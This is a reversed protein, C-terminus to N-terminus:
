FSTAHISDLVFTPSSVTQQELVLWCCCAVHLLLLFLLLIGVSESVFLALRNTKKKKNTQKNATQHDGSVSRVRWKLMEVFGLPLFIM